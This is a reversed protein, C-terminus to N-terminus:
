NPREIALTIFTQRNTGTFCAGMTVIMIDEPREESPVVKFVYKEGGLDVAPQLWKSADAGEFVFKIGRSVVRIAEDMPLQLADKAIWTVREEIDCKRDVVSQLRLFSSSKKVSTLSDKFVTKGGGSYVEYCVVNIKARALASHQQGTLQQVQKIRTRSVPYNKGAIPYQKPAFGYANKQANRACTRAAHLASFGFYDRRNIGIPDDTINPSWFFNTYESDIGLSDVFTIAEENSLGGYIDVDCPKDVEFALKDMQAILAPSQSGATVIRGYDHQTGRLAQRAAIYNLTTYSTGGEIFYLVPTSTKAWKEFGNADDGYAASVVPIRATAVPPVIFEVADTRSAVVDPLYYSNGYDDLAEDDSSGRFRYLLDGNRPDILKVTFERNEVVAGTEDTLEDAHVSVVLGDNYCEHHKLAFLFTDPPVAAEVKYEIVTLDNSLRAVIYNNVAADPVLRKIVAEYAGNTLSEYIQIHAENLVNKTMTEGHGTKRFYNSADVKFPTDVRGRQCRMAVAIVQDALGSATRESNDITPNLQIGSEHGLQRTFPITM